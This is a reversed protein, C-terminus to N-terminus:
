LRHKPKRQKPKPKLGKMFQIRESNQMRDSQNKNVSVKWPPRQTSSSFDRSSSGKLDSWLKTRASKDSLKNVKSFLFIQFEAVAIKIIRNEFQELSEKEANFRSDLRSCLQRTAYLSQELTIIQSNKVDTLYQQVKPLTPDNDNIM